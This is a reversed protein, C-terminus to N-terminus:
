IVFNFMLLSNFIGYFMTGGQTQFMSETLFNVMLILLFMMYVFRHEKISKYLPLLLTALLALLGIAGLAVTCQFYEDHANLKDKIAGEAGDIAYQQMLVDIVDGTGVGIIPNEEIVKLTSKWVYYRVQTSETSASSLNKQGLIEESSIIRSRGATIVYHYALFYVAAMGIVIAIPSFWARKFWIYRAILVILVLSSVILGTKSQLLVLMFELFFISTFLFVKERKKLEAERDILFYSIMVLAVDIYMSYYSPHLFLSFEKYQFILEHKVLLRWLAVGICILGNCILGAIFLLIFRKQKTFDMVGQCAFVIPFIFLSMKVEIDFSGEKMNSTYLLGILHLVYFGCFLLVYKNRFSVSFRKKLDGEAFWAVMYFIIAIPTGYIFCPLIFGLLYFLAERIKTIQEKM